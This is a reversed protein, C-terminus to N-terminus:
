RERRALTRPNRRSGHGGRATALYCECCISQTQRRGLIGQMSLGAGSHAPLPAKKKRIQNPKRALSERLFDRYCRGDRASPVQSAGKEEPHNPSSGPLSGVAGNEIPSPP